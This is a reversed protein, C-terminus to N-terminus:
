NLWDDEVESICNLPGLEPTTFDEPQTPFGTPSWMLINAQAKVQNDGIPLIIRTETPKSIEGLRPLLMLSVDDFDEPWCFFYHPERSEIDTKKLLLVVVNSFISSQDSDFQTGDEYEVAIIQSPVYIYFMYDHSASVPAMVSRIKNFVHQRMDSSLPGEPPLRNSYSFFDEKLAAFFSDVESSTTLSDNPNRPVGSYFVTELASTVYDSKYRQSLYVNVSQGYTSSFFFMLSSLAMVIILFYLADTISAQGVSNFSFFDKLAM